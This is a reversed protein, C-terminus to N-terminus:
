PAKKMMRLRDRLQARPDAPTVSKRMTQPVVISRPPAENRTLGVAARVAERTQRVLNGEILVNCRGVYMEPSMQSDDSFGGILFDELESTGGWREARVDCAGDIGVHEAALVFAPRPSRELASKLAAKAENVAGRYSIEEGLVMGAEKLAEKLAAVRSALFPAESHEPVLLLVPGDKAVAATTELQSRLEEILARAPTLAPEPGIITDAVGELAEAEGLAVIRTGSEHLSRLAEVLGEADRGAVVILTSAGNAVAERARAAQGTAPEGPKPRESAFVIAEVGAEALGIREMLAVEPIMESPPIFALIPDSKPLYEEDTLKPPEGGCGVMITGIWAGVLWGWTRRGRM